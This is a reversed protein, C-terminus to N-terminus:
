RISIVGIRRWLSFVVLMSFLGWGRRCLRSGPVLLPVVGYNLLDHLLVFLSFFLQTNLPLLEDLLNVLQHIRLEFTRLTAEFVAFQVLHLLAPTARFIFPDWQLAIIM